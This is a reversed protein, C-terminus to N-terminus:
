ESLFLSEVQMTDPNCAVGRFEREGNMYQLVTYWACVTAPRLFNLNFLWQPGNLTYYMLTLVYRTLFTYGEPSDKQDPVDLFLGDKEAMFELALYHSSGETSMQEESIGCSELFSKMASYRREVDTGPPVTVAVTPPATPISPPADDIDRVPEKGGGDEKPAQTNGAESTASSVVNNREENEMTLAIGLSAGIVVLALLFAVVFATCRKGKPFSRGEEDFNAASSANSIRLEELNPLSHGRDFGPNSDDGMMPEEPPPKSLYSSGNNEVDYSGTDYSSANMM